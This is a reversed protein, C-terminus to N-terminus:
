NKTWIDGTWYRRYTNYCSECIYVDYNDNGGAWSSYYKLSSNCSPCVNKGDIQVSEVEPPHVGDEHEYQSPPAECKNTGGAVNDLEDDAVEGASHFRAFYENAKEPSLDINSEKAVAVLEESSSVSMAKKILEKSYAM